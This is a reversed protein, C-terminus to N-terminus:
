GCPFSRRVGLKRLRLNRGRGLRVWDSAVGGVDHTSNRLSQLTCFVPAANSYRWRLIPAFEFSHSPDADFYILRRACPEAATFAPVFVICATSLIGDVIICYGELWKNFIEAHSMINNAFATSPNSVLRIGEYDTAWFEEWWTKSYPHILEIDNM